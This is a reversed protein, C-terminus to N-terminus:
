NPVKAVKTLKSAVDISNVSVECNFLADLYTSIIPYNSLKVLYSVALFPNQKILSALMDTTIEM